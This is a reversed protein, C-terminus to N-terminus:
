SRTEPDDPGHLANDRKQYADYRLLEYLQQRTQMQDVMDQQTGKAKLHLLMREVAKAAVRLATVPFLVIRYGLEEFETATLYPTKGFETMNAVLPVKVG